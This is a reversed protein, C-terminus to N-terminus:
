DTEWRGVALRSSPIRDKHFEEIKFEVRWFPRQCVYDDTALAHSFSILFVYDAGPSDVVIGCAKPIGHRNLRSKTWAEGDDDLSQLDYELEKLADPDCKKTHVLGFELKRSDLSSWGFAFFLFSCTQPTTTRAFRLNCTVGLIASRGEAPNLSFFVHDERDFCGLPWAQNFTAWRSSKTQLVTTGMRLLNSSSTSMNPPLGSPACAEKLDTILYRMGASSMGPYDTSWGVNQDLGDHGIWDLANARVFQDRGCKKLLIALNRKVEDDGHVYCDLVLLYRFSKARTAVDTVEVHNATVKIGHHTVTFEKPGGRNWLRVIRGCGAFFSPSSALVGSVATEQSSRLTPALSTPLRWAFITLDPTSQIIHEQLRRFAKEEEGYLLPMNVNFIGLLCYATDEIRTTERTAAWSMREAVCVSSLDVRRALM